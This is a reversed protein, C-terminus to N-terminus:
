LLDIRGLPHTPQASGGEPELSVGVAEFGSYSVEFVDAEFVGLSVQEGERHGWAQYTESALLPQALVFLARGDPLVLVSGLPENGQAPLASARVDPQALWRAVVQQESQVQRLDQRQTFGWSASTVAILLSAAVALPEWSWRPHHRVDRKRIRAKVNDWSGDSSADRRPLGEVMTVLTDNLRRLESRCAACTTLHMEVERGEEPALDGSLYDPLKDIVHSM